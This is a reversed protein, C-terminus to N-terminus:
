ILDNKLANISTKKSITIYFVKDLHADPDNGSGETKRAFFAEFKWFHAGIGFVVAFTKKSAM